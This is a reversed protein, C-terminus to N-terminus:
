HQIARAAAVAAQGLSLGGDNAPVVSHTLVQFGNAELRTVVQALLVQNQFVGGTLVVKKVLGDPRTNRSLRGIMQAIVIALGKHFRASIVGVPTELMLDDLMAQWMGVPEIYPMHTNELVAIEFPYAWADDEEEVIRADVLAEFEIAAQGEYIAHEFCVGAAAAAADFLRGCSSAKPSNVAGALMANLWVRPKADLLRFLELTPYTSSFRPWGLKSILHAYTNRWPEHMAKEGGLMVIPKFTALRQSRVYDALCFEGGWLEGNEGYGLGDLAVGLVPPSDLAIGNEAMCAAFHAHHHQVSVLRISENHSRGVMERGLKGSLYEPHHDVAVIKPAHQFLNLYDNIAGRYDTHTLANGLDGIHHSVVARGEQLLCFSNKLEGGLALVSPAVDFGVPMVISAPALGRARRLVCSAGATVRMVSDDVRRAIDRDHLLFYDAISGLRQKAEDNDIAQPEEAQNGSTLVIPCTMRHLILHHLPTNPLMFGLTHLGPAVSTALKVGLNTNLPTDISQHLVVIPAVASLLLAEEDTNVVCFQRVIDINGAMLAFPKRERNKRERLRTVANENTADCLLQFGGLGKIAVIAGHQLLSCVADAADLATLTDLGIAEGDTRELWTRPGCSHCAIPQAHFRRDDPDEYEALCASCLTFSRMTTNARDYPIGEIISLRPGCNTCNTFPYRYRRSQPNFIEKVCETCSAADPVTSTHVGTVTSKTICFDTELPLAKAPERTIRDIRALLPAEIRLAQVFSDIDRLAGCAHICVGQGNNAVTGRLSFRQALRWVTPRFGVGQVLGSVWIIEAIECLNTSGSCKNPGITLAGFFAKM